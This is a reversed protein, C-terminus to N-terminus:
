MEVVTGVGQKKARRLALEAAMLDQIALGVSKFVTIHDENERGPISKVAVEGIEILDEQDLSGDRICSILEGAEKLAAERSDVFVKARRILGPALERMQPTFSGIANIHAGRCIDGLGLVPKTAPTATCIIDAGEVAEPATDVVQIRDPIGARKVMERAFRQAHRRDRSFVRVEEIQRVSCVAELQTRAQVGSGIIGLVRANHRALLQTAFGSAAGTRIATLTTGEVLGEPRGTRANFVVVVGHIFPRGKSRNGPLLSLFKSALRPPNATAAPMILASNGGDGIRMHVRHPLIAEGRAVAVMADHTARIAERMPLLQRVNEATLIRM